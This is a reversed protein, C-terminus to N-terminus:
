GIIMFKKHMKKIKWLESFRGPYNWNKFFEEVKKVIKFTISM